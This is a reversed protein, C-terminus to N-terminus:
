GSLVLTLSTRVLNTTGNVHSGPPAPSAEAQNMVCPLLHAEKM